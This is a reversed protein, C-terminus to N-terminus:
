QWNVSKSLLIRYAPYCVQPVQLIVIDMLAPVCVLFFVSEAPGPACVSFLEDRTM